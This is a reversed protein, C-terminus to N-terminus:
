DAAKATVIGRGSRTRTEPFANGEISLQVDVCTEYDRLVPEGQMQRWYRVRLLSECHPCKVILDAQPKKTKDIAM